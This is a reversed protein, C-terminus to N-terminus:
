WEEEALFGAPVPGGPGALALVRFRAGMAAAWAANLGGRHLYMEGDTWRGDEDAGSGNVVWHHPFARNDPDAFATDPLQARHRGLWESWQPEDERTESNHRLAM